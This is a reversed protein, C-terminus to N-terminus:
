SPRHFNDQWGTQKLLVLHIAIGSRNINKQLEAIKCNKEQYFESKFRLETRDTIKLQFSLILAMSM